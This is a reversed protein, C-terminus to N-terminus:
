VVAHVVVPRGEGTHFEGTFDAWHREPWHHVTLWNVLETQMDTVDRVDVVVPMRDENRGNRRVIMEAHRKAV